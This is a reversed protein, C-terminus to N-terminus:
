VATSKFLELQVPECQVNIDEPAEVSGQITGHALGAIYKELRRYGYSRFPHEDSSGATGLVPIKEPALPSPGKLRLLVVDDDYEDFFKAIIARRNKEEGGHVQPFYVGIESGNSNRPQVGAAHVVHACTVIKGDTSVAIGTGVIQDNADRIQVTFDRLNQLRVNTDSM